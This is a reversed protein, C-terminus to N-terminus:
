ALNLFKKEWDGTKVPGHDLERLIAERCYSLAKRLDKEAFETEDVKGQHVAESGADYAKRLEKFVELRKEPEDRGLLWAGSIAIRFRFEGKNERPLFLSEFAIRMDISRDVLSRHRNMAALWRSVAVRSSPQAKHLKTALHAIQTGSVDFRPVVSSQFWVDAKPLQLTPVGTRDSAVWSVGDLRELKGFSARNDALVALDGYDNYFLGKPVFTDCALSLAERIDRFYVPASPVNGQLSASPDEAFPRFLVPTATSKISVCTQGLFADRSASRPLILSDPLESARRSLPLIDAVGPFLTLDGSLVLPVVNCTRFHLPIGRSWDDVLKAIRAPGLITSGRILTDALENVTCHAARSVHGCHDMTTPVSLGGLIPFTFGILDNTDDLHRSLIKRLVKALASLREAPVIVSAIQVQRVLENKQYRERELQTARPYLIPGVAKPNAAPFSEGGVDLITDNIAKRLVTCLREGNKAM